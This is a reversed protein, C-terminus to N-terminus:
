DLEKITINSRQVVELRMVPRNLEPARQIADHLTLKIEGSVLKGGAVSGLHPNL